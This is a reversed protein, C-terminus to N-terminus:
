SPTSADVTIGPGSHSVLGLFGALVVVSVSVVLSVRAGALLRSLIDRGLQDTGLPHAWTGGDFVPPSLTASMNVMNPPDPAFLGGFVGCVVFLTLVLGSFLPWSRARKIWSASQDRSVEVPEVPEDLTLSISM